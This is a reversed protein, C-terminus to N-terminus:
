IFLRPLEPTLETINTYRRAKGIYGAFEGTHERAASTVRRLDELVVDDLACERIYHATCVEAGKKKYTSCTFHNYAASMAHARSRWTAPVWHPLLFYM